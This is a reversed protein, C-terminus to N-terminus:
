LSQAAKRKRAKRKYMDRKVSSAYDVLLKGELHDMEHQIAVALLDETKITKTEGDLNEYQVQVVRARDVEMTFDPLSLCGEEFATNESSDLIRPNILVTPDPDGIAGAVDVVILRISVGVQPAALGIGPAAYMTELMGAALKRIEETDPVGERCERRLVPDPFTRIPLIALVSELLFFLFCPDDGKASAVSSLPILFGKSL